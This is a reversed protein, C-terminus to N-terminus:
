TLKDTQDNQTIPANYQRYFTLYKQSLTDIIKAIYSDPAALAALNEAEDDGPLSCCSYDYMAYPNTYVATVSVKTVEAPVNYLFLKHMGNVPPYLVGHPRSASPLFQKPKAGEGYYAKWAFGKKSAPGLWSILPTEGVSLVQPVMVVKTVEEGEIPDCCSSAKGDTVALCGIHQEILALEPVRSCVGKKQELFDTILTNRLLVVESKIQERPIPSHIDGDLGDSVNNIIADTIHGLTWIEM